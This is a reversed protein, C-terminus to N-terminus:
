GHVLLTEIEASSPAQVGIVHTTSTHGVLDLSPITCIRMGSRASEGGVPQVAQLARLVPCGSRRRFGVEPTLDGVKPHHKPVVGLYKTQNSFLWISVAMGVIMAIPGAWNQHRKDQALAGTLTGRRLVRDVFVVALWPAIWYAIVLLFNQYNTGANKMGFSALVFGILGFVVAM